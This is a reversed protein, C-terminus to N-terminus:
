TSPSVYLNRRVDHASWFAAGECLGSALIRFVGLGGTMFNFQLCTRACVGVHQGSM